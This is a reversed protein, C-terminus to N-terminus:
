FMETVGSASGADSTDGPYLYDSLHEEIYRVEDACEAIAKYAAVNARSKSPDFFAKPTAHPGLWSDLFQVIEGVTEDYHLVLDEFWVQKVVKDDWPKVSERMARFYTCFKAADFPLPIPCGRPRWVYKNLAFVDRPDRQVVLARGDHPFYDPLRYLNHPLLLQDLLLARTDGSACLDALVEDIFLRSAEYFEADTPFAVVMTDGFRRMFRASPFGFKRLARGLNKESRTVKEHDYWFGEYECCALRQIYREVHDMFSASLKERYNAFWWHDNEFLEGMAERFSRLAEDSRIANNNRLLEDELDFVGHPCHLFVYEYSGNPCYIGEFERLLDTAASSGSGMYSAVIIKNM